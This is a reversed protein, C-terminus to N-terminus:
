ARGCDMSVVEISKDVDLIILMGCQVSGDVLKKRLDDALGNMGVYTFFTEQNSHLGNRRGESKRKSSNPYIRRQTSNSRPTSLPCSNSRKVVACAVDVFLEGTVLVDVSLTLPYDPGAKSRDCHEVFFRNETLSLPQLAPTGANRCNLIIKFLGRAWPPLSSHVLPLITFLM